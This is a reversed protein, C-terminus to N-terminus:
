WLSTARWIPPSSAPCASSRSRSSCWLTSIPITLGAISSTSRCRVTSQGCGSRTTTSSSIAVRSLEIGMNDAPFSHQLPRNFHGADAARLGARAGPAVSHLMERLLEPYSDVPRVAFTEFLEPCLRLMAERNELMYSVGSPTRVNDELVWHEDAGTRVLDIGCIHAYVGHPPRAGACPICYQSNGLVIDPPIAGDALIRRAGYVDDIFANIARVRQELGASLNDWERATFIRPIIDFPIIREAAEEDGYVAFTIGLSRFAAEAAQQRRDMETPPLDTLWKALPEFGPRSQRSRSAGWLEDFANTAAM